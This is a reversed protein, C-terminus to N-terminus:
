LGARTEAALADVVDALRERRAYVARQREAATGRRVLADMGAHVRETDGLEDLAPRVHDLLAGVVERAPRARAGRPDVLVDALGSRGARWRAARVLEPRPPATVPAVGATERVATVVLARSVGALTVADELLPVADCARVELTPYRASPRVDFYVMGPDAITGSAVLDAVLRDYEAASDFPLPPGGTPWRSLLVSRYSAYGTDHGAFFPSSTSLALLVPLWPAVRPLAAVALERDAVGVQVQLACVLQGRAVDAYEAFLWEYRQRPYPGQGGAPPGPLTGAAVVGVGARDAAALLGRRREALRGALEDLTRCVPTATEVESRQLEAALEGGLEAAIDLVREAAPALARQVPEALHFEEEVGVTVPDGTTV